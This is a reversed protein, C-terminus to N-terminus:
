RRGTSAGEFGRNERAMAELEDVFGRLEQLTTDIWVERPPQSIDSGFQSIRLRVRDTDLDGAKVTGRVQSSSMELIAARTIRRYIM